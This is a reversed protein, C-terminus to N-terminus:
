PNATLTAGSPPAADLSKLAEFIDRAVPASTAGGSGDGEVLVVVAYRPAEYPAFAIFWLNRGIVRNHADTVQATGTKGCVRLAGPQRYYDRFAAYATGEPDETDALMADRLIALHREPVGLRDRV